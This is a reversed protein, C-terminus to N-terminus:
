WSMTGATDWINGAASPEKWARCGGAQQAEMHAGQLKELWSISAPVPQSPVPCKTAREWM